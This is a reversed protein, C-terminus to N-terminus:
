DFRSQLESTHEESRLGPGLDDQGVGVVEVQTRPRLNEFLRAAHVAERRPLSRHQGIRAAELDKRQGVAALQAFLPAMETRVDVLDSSRRTPLPPPPR